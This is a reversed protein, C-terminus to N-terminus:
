FLAALMMAVTALLGVGWVATRGWPHGTAYLPVYALRALLYIWACAATFSTGSGAVSIVLAPVAFMVLGEVQNNFARHMRGALGGPPPRQEDRPGMLYRTSMKMNVLTAMLCLQAATLLGSLTLVTLEPTMDERGSVPAYSSLKLWM